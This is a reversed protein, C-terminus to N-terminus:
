IYGTIDISNGFDYRVISGTVYISSHPRFLMKIALSLTTKFKQIKM